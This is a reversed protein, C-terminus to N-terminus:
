IRQFPFMDKAEKSINPFVVNSIIILCIPILLLILVLRIPVPPLEQNKRARSAKKTSSKNQAFDKM